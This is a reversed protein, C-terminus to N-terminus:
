ITNLSFQTTVPKFGKSLVKILVMYLRPDIANRGVSIDIISSIQEDPTLNYRSRVQIEQLEKLNNIATQLQSKALGQIVDSPLVSGIVSRSIYSGYWPHLPNSGATTLCIKLLAQILKESDVVKRLDGKDIVLDGNIIKLDFSM